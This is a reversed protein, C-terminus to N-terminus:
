LTGAKYGFMKPLFLVIEPFFIMAFLAIVLVAIFGWIESIM